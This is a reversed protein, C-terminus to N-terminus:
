QLSLMIVTIAEPNIPAIAEIIPFTESELDVGTIFKIWFKHIRYIDASDPDPEM